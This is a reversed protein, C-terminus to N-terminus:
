YGIAADAILCLTFHEWAAAVDADGQPLRSALLAVADPLTLADANEQITHLLELRTM